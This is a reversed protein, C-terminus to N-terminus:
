KVEKSTTYSERKTEADSMKAVRKNITSILNKLTNPSAIM